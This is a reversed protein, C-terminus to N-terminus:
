ADVERSNARLATAYATDTASYATEAGITAAGLSALVTTLDALATLHTAHAARYTTLFDAGIPGLAPALLLPDAATARLTAGALTAAMAAATTAYETLGAPDITIRHM